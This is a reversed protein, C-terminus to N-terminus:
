KVTGKKSLLAGLFNRAVSAKAPAFFKTIITGKTLFYIGTLNRAVLARASARYEKMKTNGEIQTFCLCFEKYKCKKTAFFNKIDM